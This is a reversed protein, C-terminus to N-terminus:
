RPTRAAAALSPSDARAYSVTLIEWLHGDADQWYLNKGGLRRNIQMDTQGLPSSRYAMGAAQIRGHIADFVADSVHFCYHHSEFPERDAFDLTLTENVYVPTFPGQAEQWPVDLLHALSKAGAVPDHSPVILHDLLIAM